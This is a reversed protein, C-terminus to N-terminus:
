DSKKPVEQTPYVTKGMTFFKQLWLCDLVDHARRSQTVSLNHTTQAITSCVPCSSSWRGHAQHICPTSTCWTTKVYAGGEQYRWREKSVWTCRQSGPVTRIGRQKRDHQIRGVGRLLLTKTLIAVAAKLPLHLFAAARVLNFIGEGECSLRLELNSPLM